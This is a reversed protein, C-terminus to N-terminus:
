TKMTPMASMSLQIMDAYNCIKCDTVFMFLDNLYINFLFPALVSGHPVGTEILTSFDGNVKVRQKRRNLYSHILQLAGRSFGHAELKAM